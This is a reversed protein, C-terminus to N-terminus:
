SRLQFLLSDLTIFSIWVLFNSHSEQVETECIISAGVYM